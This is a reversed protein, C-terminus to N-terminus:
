VGKEDEAGAREEQEEKKRLMSTKDMKSSEKLAEDKGEISRFYGEGDSAAAEQKKLEVADSQQKKDGEKPKPKPLKSDVIAELKLSWEGVLERFRPHALILKQINIKKKVFLYSSIEKHHVATDGGTARQLLLVNRVINEIRTKYADDVKSYALQHCKAELDKAYQQPLLSQLEKESDFGHHRFLDGIAKRIRARQEDRVNTVFHARIDAFVTESYM